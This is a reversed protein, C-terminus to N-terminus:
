YNFDKLTICKYAAFLIVGAIYAIIAQGIVSGMMKEYFGPTIGTLGHIILLSILIIAIIGAQGTQVKKKRREKEEYYKRIVIKTKTLLKSYDANNISCIYLNKLINKLRINEVKNIYNDFAIEMPIGRKVEMVFEKNHTKLPEKLSKTAEEMMFLISNKIKASSKLANIFSMISDDIKDFNIRAMERLVAYSLIIVALFGLISFVISHFILYVIYATVVAFFLEIFIFLESSMFRFNKRINSNYILNDIKFIFSKRGKGKKKYIEEARESFLRAEYRKNVFQLLEKIKNRDKFLMELSLFVMIVIQVALIVNLIISFASVHM